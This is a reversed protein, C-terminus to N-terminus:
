KQKQKIDMAYSRQFLIMIGGAVSLLVAALFLYWARLDKVELRVWPSGNEFRLSHGEFRVIEGLMVDKTLVNIKGRMIRLTLTGPTVGRKAPEGKPPLSLYIRHPLTGFTFYPPQEKELPLRVFGAKDEEGVAEDILLFPAMSEGAFKVAFWKWIVRGDSPLEKQKGNLVIVTRGFNQSPASELALPLQPPPGWKPGKVAQYRSFPEGMGLEVTGSFRFGYWFLGAVMLLLMGAFLFSLGSQQLRIEAVLRTVFSLALLLYFIQFTRASAMIDTSVGCLPTIILWWLCIPLLLCIMTRYSGTWEAIRGTRKFIFNM